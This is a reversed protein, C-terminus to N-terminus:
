NTPSGSGDEPESFKGLEDIDENTVGNLRQAKEFIPNLASAPMNGVLAEQDDTFIRPGGPKEVLCRVALRARVNNTNLDRHRGRGKMLSKEWADRQVGSMGQVWVQGTRGNITITVPECPLQPQSAAAILDDKTFFEM